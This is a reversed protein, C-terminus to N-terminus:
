ISLQSLTATANVSRNQELFQFMLRRVMELYMFVQQKIWNQYDITPMLKLYVLLQLKGNKNKQLMLTESQM